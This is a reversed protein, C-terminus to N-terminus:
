EPDNAPRPSSGTIQAAIDITTASVELLEDFPIPSPGGGRVADVFSAVCASQGKDQRWGSIKRFGSWGYGRLARFNDLALVRGQSFVELREKPFAKNGNGLYHVTGFSGDAFSLTFVAKDDPNAVGDSAGMSAVTFSAVPADALYRLLDVFHCGEGLVRGGGILPDHAWHDAPIRGANVTMVFSKPQSAGQILSKIRQVYPSFRRNFGVMLLSGADAGASEQAASYAVAIRDLQEHTLCLPKEVFVHKGAALADCVLDAHSDHRTAIVITDIEDDALMAVVDSTANEFGLKRGVHTSNVGGLGAVSKLRVGTQKFAPLLVGSAYGGAGICGIVGSSPAGVVPERLAVTATAETAPQETATDCRLLVGLSLGAEEILDYADRAKEIPFEHSILPAVDLKGAALLGLVAEFNRQETWRVFGLPYDNGREEYEPDYRGPGYSCSVQFSLEKRYFDDRSLQLGTVGVLVIRGRKRSMTAAQHMPENSKTAATILVGDIGDGGSFGEAVGVPDDGALAVEDAGLTRALALREELIDIGLVRCGNAKLLQVTILGVLGLGVVAFSEGLTPAALRVGQLAISGIVTFAAQEDTVGDPVKACLNEPVCVIEAHRGNSAVRDGPQFGAAVGPGVELVTGCNCYGMAVPEDLKRRVAEVTPVIGDTRAKELVMRVKDPHNRAKGVLSAKGAGVVMRETGASILTARTAILLHKPRAQPAPVDAVEIVGDKYSQIIQRM